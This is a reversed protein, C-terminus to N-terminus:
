PVRLLLEYLTPSSAWSILRMFQVICLVSSSSCVWLREMDILQCSFSVLHAKQGFGNERRSRVDAVEKTLTIELETAIVSSSSFFFPM